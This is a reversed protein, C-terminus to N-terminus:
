DKEHVSQVAYGGYKEMLSLYHNRAKQFMGVYDGSNGQPNLSGFDCGSNTELKERLEHLADGDVSPSFDVNPLHSRIEELRVVILAMRALLSYFKRKESKSLKLLFGNENGFDCKSFYTLQSKLNEISLLTKLFVHGLENEHQYLLRLDRYCGDVDPFFKLIDKANRRLWLAQRQSIDIQGPGLTHLTGAMNRSVQQNAFLIFVASRGGFAELRRYIIMAEAFAIRKRENESRRATLYWGGLAILGAAVVSLFTFIDGWSVPKPALDFQGVSVFICTSIFVILFLVLLTVAVRSMIKEYM